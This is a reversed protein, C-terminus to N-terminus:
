GMVETTTYSSAMKSESIVERWRSRDGALRLSESASLNTWIKHEWRKSRSSIVTGQLITKSLCISRTVHIGYNKVTYM